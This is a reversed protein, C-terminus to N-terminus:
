DILTKAGKCLPNSIPTPEGGECLGPSANSFDDPRHESTLWAAAADPRSATAALREPVICLM